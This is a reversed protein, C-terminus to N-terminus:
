FNVAWGQLPILSKGRPSFPSAFGQELSAQRCTCHKLWNATVNSHNHMSLKGNITIGATATNLALKRHPQNTAYHPHHGHISQLKRWGSLHCAEDGILGWHGSGLATHLSPPLCPPKSSRTTLAQVVCQKRSMCVGHCCQREVNNNVTQFYQSFQQCVSNTTNPISIDQNPPLTSM